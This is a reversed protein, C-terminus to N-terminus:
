FYNIKKPCSAAVAWVAQSVISKSWSWKPLLMRDPFASLRPPWSQAVLLGSMDGNSKKRHGYKFTFKVGNYVFNLLWISNVNITRFNKKKNM